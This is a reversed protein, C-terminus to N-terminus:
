PNPYVAARVDPPLRVPYPASTAFRVLDWVQRETYKPPGHAPMGVAPIGYRIRAYVDEARSGGKLAPETFNAPKAVTGWVDYQLVPKRGFDGHCDMCSKEGKAADAKAKFLEYGRKVADNFKASEPEGDDPPAPPPPASEAKEWEALVAKLRAALEAPKNEALAKLSDFEVQGRASLFVVYGALLDREGEQLLSFAPMATGKLGDHLTRTLDERRPKFGDGSTTFKFVGQRYDRPFPVVFQGSKAGRGDGNLNHCDLCHRKYLRAGEALHAETLKPLSPPFNPEAPTGFQEKLFADLSSRADAPLAAPDVTRGGLSDLAAIEEDRHGATNMASPPRDPLRLVLRDARAPFPMEPPYDPKSDCGGCGVVSLPGLAVLAAAAVGRWSRRGALGSM